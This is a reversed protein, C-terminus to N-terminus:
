RPQHNQQLLEPTIAWRTDIQPIIDKLDIWSTGRFGGRLIEEQTTGVLHRNEQRKTFVETLSESATQESGNEERTYETNYINFPDRMLVFLRGNKECTDILNVCHPISISIAGGQEIVRQCAFYFSLESQSYTGDNEYCFFRACYKRAEADMTGIGREGAQRMEAQRQEFGDPTEGRQILELNHYLHAQLNSLYQDEEQASIQEGADKRDQFVFTLIQERLHNLTVALVLPLTAMEKSDFSISMTKQLGNAIELPLGATLACLVDPHPTTQTWARDAQPYQPMQGTLHAVGVRIDGMTLEDSVNYLRGERVEVENRTNFGGLAYAKELLQVWTCDCANGWGTEYQKRLKFWCPIMQVGSLYVEHKDNVTNGQYDVAAYLRVLVNGDGLDHFMSRIFDPNTKVVSSIASVLWCDGISSQRVDNLNPTHLFLPINQLNSQDLNATFTTDEVYATTSQVIRELEERSMTDAMTGRLQDEVRDVYGQLVECQSHLLPSQSTENAQLYAKASKLFVDLFAMEMETVDANVIGNVKCWRELAELARDLQDGELAQPDRQAFIEGRSQALGRLLDAKKEDHYLADLPVPPTITGNGRQWQQPLHGQAMEPVLRLLDDQRRCSEEYRVAGHNMTRKERLAWNLLQLFGGIRNGCWEVFNNVTVMKNKRRSAELERGVGLRVRKKMEITEIEERHLQEMGEVRLRTVEGQNEQQLATIMDRMNDADPVHIARGNYQFTCDTVGNARARSLALGTACGALSSATSIHTQLQTLQLHQPQFHENQSWIELLQKGKPSAVLNQWVMGMSACAELETHCDLLDCDRCGRQLLPVVTHNYQHFFQELLHAAAEQEEQTIPDNAGEDLWRQILRVRGFDGLATQPDATSLFVGTQFQNMKELDEGLAEDGQLSPHASLDRVAQQTRDYLRSLDRSLDEVIHQRSGNWRRTVEQLQELAQEFDRRIAEATRGERDTVHYYRLTLELLRQCLPLMDCMQQATRYQEESLGLRYYDPHDGRFVAVTKMRDLQRRLSAYDVPTDDNLHFSRPSLLPGELAQQLSMPEGPATEYATRLSKHKLYLDEREQGDQRHAVGSRALASMRAQLMPSFGRLLAETHTLQEVAALIDRQQPTLAGEDGAKKAAERAKVADNYIPHNRIIQYRNSILNYQQVMDVYAAPLDADSISEMQRALTQITATTHACRELLMEPSEIPAEQGEGRQESLANIPAALDAIEQNAREETYGPFRSITKQAMEVADPSADEQRLVACATLYTQLKAQQETLAEFKQSIIEDRRQEEQEQLQLQTLATLAQSRVQDSSLPRELPPRNKRPLLLKEGKALAQLAKMDRRYDADYAKSLQGKETVAQEDYSSLLQYRKKLNAWVRSYFELKKGMQAEERTLPSVQQFYIQMDELCAFDAEIQPLAQLYAAPTMACLTEGYKQDMAELHRFYVEKLLAQGEAHLTEYYAQSPDPQGEGNWTSGATLSDMLRILVEGSLDQELLRSVALHLLCQHTQLPSDGLTHNEGGHSSRIQSSQFQIYQAAEQRPGYAAQEPHDLCQYLAYDRYQRALSKKKDTRFPGSTQQFHQLTQQDERAMQEIQKQRKQQELQLGSM